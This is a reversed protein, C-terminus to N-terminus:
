NLLKNELPEPTHQFGLQRALQATPRPTKVSHKPSSSRSPYFCGTNTRKRRIGKTKMIIWKDETPSIFGPFPRNGAEERSDEYNRPNPYTVPSSMHSNQRRESPKTGKFIGMLISAILKIIPSSGLKERWNNTHWLAQTLQFYQFSGYAKRVDPSFCINPNCHKPTSYMWWLNLTTTIPHYYRDRQTTLSFWTFLCM